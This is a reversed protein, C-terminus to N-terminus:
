GARTRKQRAADRSGDTANVSSTGNRAPVAIIEGLNGALWPDGRGTAAARTRGASQKTRLVFRTWSARHAATPVVNMDIGLEAILEQACSVGIGTVEDLQAVQAVFPSIADDLCLLRSDSDVVTLCAAAM